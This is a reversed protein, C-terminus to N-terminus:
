LVAPRGSIELWSKRRDTAVAMPRQRGSGASPGGVLEAVFLDGHGGVDAVAAAGAVGAGGLDELGECVSWWSMRVRRHAPSRGVRAGGLPWPLPAVDGM